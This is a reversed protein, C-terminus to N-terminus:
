WPVGNLSSIIFDVPAFRVLESSIKGFNITSISGVPIAPSTMAPTSAEAIPVSEDAILESAEEVYRSKNIPERSASLRVGLFSNNQDLINVKNHPTTRVPPAIIKLSEFFGTTSSPNDIAEKVYPPKSPVNRSPINKLFVLCSSAKIPNM